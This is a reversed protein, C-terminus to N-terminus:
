RISSDRGFYQDSEYQSIVETYLSQDDNKLIKHTLASLKILIDKCEQRALQVDGSTRVCVQAIYLDIKSTLLGSLLSLLMKNFIEKSEQNDLVTRNKIADHMLDHHEESIFSKTWSWYDIDFFIGLAAKRVSEDNCLKQIDSNDFKEGVVFVENTICFSLFAKKLNFLEVLLTSWGSGIRNHMEGIERIDQSILNLANQKDSLSDIVPILSYRRKQITEYFSGIELRFKELDAQLKKSFETDNKIKDALGEMGSNNYRRDIPNEVKLAKDVLISFADEFEQLILQIKELSVSRTNENIGVEREKRAQKSSNILFMVATGIITISTAIDVGWQINEINITM